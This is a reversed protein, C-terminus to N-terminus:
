PQWCLWTSNAQVAPSQAFAEYFGPVALVPASNHKFTRIIM